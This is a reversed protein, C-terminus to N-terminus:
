SIAPRHYVCMTGGACLVNTDALYRSVVILSKGTVDYDCGELGWRLAVFDEFSRPHLRFYRATVPCPLTIDLTMAWYLADFVSVDGSDDRVYRWEVDDFSYTLQFATVYAQSYSNNAFHIIM